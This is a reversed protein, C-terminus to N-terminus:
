KSQNFEVTKKEKSDFETEDELQNRDAPFFIDVLSSINISGSNLTLNTCKIEGCTSASHLIQSLVREFLICFGKIYLLYEDMRNDEETAM